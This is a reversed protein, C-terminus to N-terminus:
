FLPATANIRLEGREYANKEDDDVFVYKFVHRGNFTSVFTYIELDSQAAAQESATPVIRNIAFREVGTEQPTTNYYVVDPLPRESIPSFTGPPLNRYTVIHLQQGARYNKFEQDSLFQYFLQSRDGLQLRQYVIDNYNEIREFTNWQEEMKLIEGRLKQRVDVDSFPYQTRLPTFTM